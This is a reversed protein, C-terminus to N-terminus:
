TAPSCARGLLDRGVQEAIGEAVGFRTLNPYPTARSPSSATSSTESVPTPMAASSRRCMKVRKQRPSRERERLRSCADPQRDHALEDSRVVAPDVGVARGALGAESDDDARDLSRRDLADRRPLGLRFRM